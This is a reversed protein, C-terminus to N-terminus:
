SSAERRKKLYVYFAGQGGHRPQAYDYALIRGRNEAANLWQPLASRLVGESGHAYGKGTIILVTRRGMGQSADLFRRVAAQAADRTMGHLDLTGEIDLKGRRLREGRKRDLGALQGPGLAKADKTGTLPTRSARSASVLDEAISKVVPRSAAAQREGARDPDAKPTPPLGRSVNEVGRFTKARSQKLPDASAKVAGWVARDDESVVPPGPKKGKTTTNRNPRRKAAVM